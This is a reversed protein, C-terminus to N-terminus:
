IRQVTLTLTGTAAAGAPVALQLTLPGTRSPAVVATYTHDVPNCGHGDSHVPRWRLAGNVTLDDTTPSHSGAPRTAWGQGTTSCEADAQRVGGGPHYTGRATLRYRAGGVLAFGTRVEQDARVSVQQSWATSRYRIVPPAMPPAVRGTWFSTQKMAGAWAFSFHVHDQHCGTVGSCSYPEWRGSWTGWIRKNWIIYMIGLRRLMADRHGDADTAFLWHFLARVQRVQHANRYNVAWDLARGDYHESTSGPVCARSIGIVSTGAYTDTLLAGFAVPGPKAVPDCVQQPQYPAFDEIAAPPRVPLQPVTAGAPTTVVGSVLGACCVLGALRRPGIMALNLTM